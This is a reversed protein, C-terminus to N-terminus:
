YFNEQPRPHFENNTYQEDSEGEDEEDEEDEEDDEDDESGYDMDDDDGRGFNKKEEERMQYFENFDMRCLM